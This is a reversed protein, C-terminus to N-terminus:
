ELVWFASGSSDTVLQAHGGDIRMRRKLKFLGNLPQCHKRSVEVTAAASAKSMEETERTARGTNREIAGVFVGQAYLLRAKQSELSDCGYDGSLKVYGPPIKEQYRKCAPSEDGVCNERMASDIMEVFAKKGAHLKQSDDGDDPGLISTPNVTASFEITCYEQLPSRNVGLWYCVGVGVANSTKDLASSVRSVKFVDARTSEAYRLVDGVTSGDGTKFDALKSALEKATAESILPATKLAPRSAPLLASPRNEGNGDNGCGAVVQLCCTLAATRLLVDIM